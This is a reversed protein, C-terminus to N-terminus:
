GLLFQKYGQSPVGDVTVSLHYAAGGAPVAARQATCTSPSSVTRDWPISSSTLTTGPELLVVLSKPDTQCDTSTWYRQTGSTITFVQKATGVDFTCATPSTNTISFSLRPQVGAAYSNADTIAEVEIVDSACVSAKATTASQPLPTSTVSPKPTISPKASRSATSTPTLTTTVVPTHTAVPAADSGRRAVFVLLAIVAVVVLLVLLVAIRRRRYV